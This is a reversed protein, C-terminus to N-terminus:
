GFVERMLVSLAVDRRKGRASLCFMMARGRPLVQRIRLRREWGTKQLHIKYPRVRYLEGQKTLLYVGEFGSVDLAECLEGEVRNTRFIHINTIILTKREKKRQM